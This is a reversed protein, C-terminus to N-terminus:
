EKSSYLYVILSPLVLALLRSLPVQKVLNETKAQYINFVIDVIHTSDFVRILM